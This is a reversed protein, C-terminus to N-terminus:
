PKNPNKIVPNLLESANKPSLGTMTAHNPSAGSTRIVDGGADRVDRVTTVGIKSHPLPNALEKVSCNGCEM